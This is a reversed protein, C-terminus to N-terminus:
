RNSIWVLLRIVGYILLYCDVGLCIWFLFGASKGSQVRKRRIILMLVSFPITVIFSLLANLTRTKTEKEVCERKAEEYQSLVDEYDELLSIHIADVYAFDYEDYLPEISSARGSTIIVAHKIQGNNLYVVAGYFDSDIFGDEEDKVTDTTIEKTLKIKTGKPFLVPEPYEKVYKIDSTYYVVDETLTTQMEWTISVGKIDIWPNFFMSLAGSAIFVLILVILPVRGSLGKGNMNMYGGAWMIIYMPLFLSCRDNREFVYIIDAISVSSKM